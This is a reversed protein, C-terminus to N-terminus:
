QVTTNDISNPFIEKLEFYIRKERQSARLRMTCKPCKRGKSRNSICAQWVHGMSCKWYVKKNSGGTFKEPILPHNKKYYREKCLDPHETTLNFDESAKRKWKKGNSSKGCYPCSTGRTRSAILAQWQHGNKCLWWA